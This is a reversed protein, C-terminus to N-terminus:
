DAPPTSVPKTIWYRADSLPAPAFSGSGFVDTVEVYSILEYAPDFQSLDLAFDYRGSRGAELWASRFPAEQDAERYHIRVERAWEGDHVTVAVPFPEATSWRDPLTVDRVRPKRFGDVLATRYSPTVSERGASDVAHIEYDFTGPPLHPVPFRLQFADGDRAMEFETGDKLRLTLGIVGHPATATATVLLDENAAAALAPLHAILPATPRVILGSLAWAGAQGVVIDLRGGRVSVDLRAEGGAPVTATQGNCEIAVSDGGLEPAVAILQYDGDGLDVRFTHPRTGSLYSQTLGDLPIADVVRPDYDPNLAVHHVGWLLDRLLYSPGIGRLGAPDLWGFGASTRYRFGPTHETEVDVRTFRPEPDLGTLGTLYRPPSLRTVTAELQAPGLDFGHLFLGWREFFERVRRIRALDYAVRPRNDRWHGGSPGLFLMDAYVSTAECLREWLDIGQVAADEANDLHHVDGTAYFLELHATARTKAAQYRSLAAVAAFDVIITRVELTELVEEFPRLELLSDDIDQAFQDLAHAVHLPSLKASAGGAVTRAAHERATSFLSREGPAAIANHDIPGGADLEPWVYMNEDDMRHGVLYSIVQSAARYARLVAPAAEQSTREAAALLFPANPVLNDYGARGFAMHFLWYRDFDWRAPLDTRTRWDDLPVEGWQSFGKQSGPPSIEFGVGGGLLCSRALRRSFEPDGWNFLRHSGLAWVQWLLAGPRDQKLISDYSYGGRLQPPQYPMGMHEGFYKTSVILEAGTKRFAELTDTQLRWNRLEVAVPRGEQILEAVAPAYSRVFFRQDTIGSEGNMRLQIGDIAPCARMLQKFAEGTYEALYGLDDTGTIRTPQDYWSGGSTKWPRSSWIGLTFGIGRSAMADSALRLIDLQRQREPATVDETRIRPFSDELGDILFAYIPILYPSQHGFVLNFRNYRWRALHDAYSRWYEPDDVWDQEAGANFRFTYIGRLSLTPVFEREEVDDLSKGLNLAEALDLCAYMLGNQDLGELTITRPSPRGVRYRGARAEVAPRSAPSPRLRLLWDASPPGPSTEVIFGRSELAGQLEALGFAAGSGASLDADFHVVPTENM